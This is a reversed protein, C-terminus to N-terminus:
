GTNPHDKKSKAQQISEPTSDDHQNQWYVDTIRNLKADVAALRLAAEFTMGPHNTLLQVVDRNTVRKLSSIPTKPNQANGITTVLLHSGDPPTAPNYPRFRVFM